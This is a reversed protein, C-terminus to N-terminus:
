DGYLIVTQIKNRGQNKFYRYRVRSLAIGGAILGVPLGWTDFQSLDGEQILSNVGQATLFVMGGGIGLLALNRLTTNRPDKNKIDIAVINDPSLVNETLVILDNNIDVIVDYLFFDFDKTKYVLEEGIEYKLRTKQNSGRQLLIFKQAAVEGTFLLLLCSLLFFRLPKPINM